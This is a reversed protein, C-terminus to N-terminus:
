KKFMPLDDIIMASLKLITNKFPWQETRNDFESTIYIKNKTVLALNKNDWIVYEAELLTKYKKKESKLDTNKSNDTQYITITEFYMMYDFNNENRLREMSIPLDFYKEIGNEDIYSYQESDNFNTPNYFVWQVNDFNSFYSLGVPFQERFDKLFYFRSLFEPQIEKINITDPNIDETLVGLSINNLEKGILEQNLYYDEDIIKGTSCSLHIIAIILVVFPTKYNINPQM